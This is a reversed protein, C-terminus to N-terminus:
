RADSERGSLAKAAAFMAAVNEPKAEDVSAGTAFIYGGGSAAQEFIEAVKAEVEPPTGIALLSIPLNGAVCARGALARKAAGIDTTEFAWITRGAPIEPDAIIELRADYSSESVLYPVVGHEICGLIVAKLTPWYLERFTKDSMFGDSGWHLPVMVIPVGTADASRVAKGIQLPVIREMARRLLEPRRITDMMANRAGRLEDAIVDYPALIIGGAISPLGLEGSVADGAAAVGELWAASAAGAERLAAFMAGAADTAFPEFVVPAYASDIDTVGGFAALPALPPFVRPLYRTLWFLTPDAILLEYEDDRMYEGEVWQFAADDALGHGPWQWQRCDLIDFVPGPMLPEMIVADPLYMRHFAEYADALTSLDYTATRTSFGAQRIPFHLFSPCVPVVSERLEIADKMWACRQRHAGRAQEGFFEIHEAAAWAAMREAYREDAMARVNAEDM